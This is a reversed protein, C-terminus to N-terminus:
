QFVFKWKWQIDKTRASPRHCIDIGSRKVGLYVISYINFHHYNLIVRNPKGGYVGFFLPTVGDGKYFFVMINIKLNRIQSM